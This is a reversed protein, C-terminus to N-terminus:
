AKSYVNRLFEREATFTECSSGEIMMHIHPKRRKLWSFFYEFDFIGQGIPVTEKKGNELRYDKLHIACVENGCLTFMEDVVANPRHLDEGNILNIPDFIVCLNPSNIDDLLRRMTKPSNLAHHSVGEAAMMVGLKEAASVIVRFSELLVAYADEHSAYREAGGTETGTMDARLYKAYKLNEIYRNLIQRRKAENPETPDLYSGFVSIDIGNKRFVGRMYGALGPNFSGYEFDIDSVGKTPAFQINTVNLEKLKGVFDAFPLKGVDHGRMGVTFM